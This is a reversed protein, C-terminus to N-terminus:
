WCCFHRRPKLNRESGSGHGSAWPGVDLQAEIV